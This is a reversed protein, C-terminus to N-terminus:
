RSLLRWEEECGNSPEQSEPLLLIKVHRDHGNTHCKYSMITYSLPLYIEFSLLDDDVMHAVPEGIVQVQGDHGHNVEIVQARLCLQATTDQM